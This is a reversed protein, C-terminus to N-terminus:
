TKAATTSLISISNYYVHIVFMNKGGLPLFCLTGQILRNPPFIEPSFGPSFGERPLLQHSKFRHGRVGCDLAKVM